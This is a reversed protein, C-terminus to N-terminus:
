VMKTSTGVGDSVSVELAPPNKQLTLEKEDSELWQRIIAELDKLNNENVTLVM